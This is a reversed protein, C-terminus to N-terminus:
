NPQRRGRPRDEDQNRQQQRREYGYGYGHPEEREAERRSDRRTDRRDDGPDPRVEDVRDRKAVIFAGEMFDPAAQVPAAMALGLAALGLIGIHWTNM